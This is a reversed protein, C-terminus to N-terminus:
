NNVAKKYVQFTEKSIHLWDFDNKIRERLEKKYESTTKLNSYCRIKEALCEVNGLPYYQEPLLGIELNAPINSSLVRLGYSLAELIAIPLGEHSSPLVFLGANSYLEQLNKGGQFGTLVINKDHSAINRIKKIYTGSATIDGVLVLKWNPLDALQFSDILDLQRKEPVFRSVQLIYRNRRLGFEKLIHDSSLIEPIIVGNPILFADKNYKDKVLKKIVDSIVIRETSYKIGLREGLRLAWKAFKGWKERDYDPGHHTVVVKLGFIRALPTMIMPGVAHIHLLDPRKFGAYLIALFTHFFAEFAQTRPSWIRHIRIGKWNDIPNIKYFISRAIIEIDCGQSVLLPYLNEAHTEVGGQIGPIGRLGIVIVYM